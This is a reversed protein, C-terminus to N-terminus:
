RVLTILVLGVVDAAFHALWGAYINRGRAFIIGYIVGDVIVGIVDVAVIAPNGSAIHALGFIIAVLAVAPGTGILWSLRAQFLGRYALEEALTGILLPILFAILSMQSLLPVRGVIHALLEPWLARAAFVTLAQTGIAVLLVWPWTIRLAPLFGRPDLGIEHWTRHRVAREVLLYIIPLFGILGKTQPWILSPVITLLLVVVAEYAARRSLGTAARGAPVAVSNASSM